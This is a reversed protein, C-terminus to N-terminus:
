KWAVHWKPAQVARRRHPRSEALHAGASSPRAPASAASKVSAACRSGQPSVRSEESPPRGHRDGAGGLRM